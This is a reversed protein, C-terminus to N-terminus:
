NTLLNEDSIIISAIAKAQEPNIHQVDIEVTQKIEEMQKAKGIWRDLMKEIIDFGKWWLMNKAIIRILMPQKKDNAMETLTDQGLQLMAMYNAEIDAKTAPHIWQEALQANVLAIGKKPRGATNINQPNADFWKGKISDPNSM